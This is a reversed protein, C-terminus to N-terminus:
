QNILHVSRHKVHKQFTNNSNVSSNMTTTSSSLSSSTTVGGNNGGGAIVTNSNHHYAHELLYQNQMQNQLLKRIHACLDEFEINDKISELIRDVVWKANSRKKDPRLRYLKWVKKRHDYYFEGVLGIYKDSFCSDCVFVIEHEYGTITLSNTSEIVFDITNQDTSKWKILSEVAYGNRYLSSKDIFIFGEVKDVIVTNVTLIWESLLTYQQIHFLDHKFRLSRYFSQLERLRREFTYETMTISEIRLLDLFCIKNIKQIKLEKLEVAQSSFVVEVDIISDHWIQWEDCHGIHMCSDFIRNVLYVDDHWVFMLYREGDIKPAVYFGDHVLVEDLTRRTMSVPNNCLTKTNDTFYTTEKSNTDPNDADDDNNNDIQDKGLLYVIRALILFHSTLTRQLWLPSAPRTWQADFNAQYKNLTREYEHRTRIIIPRSDSSTVIEIQTEGDLFSLATDGGLLEYVSFLLTQDFPVCYCRDHDSSSILYESDIMSKLAKVLIWHRDTANLLYQNTCVFLWWYLEYYHKELYARIRPYYVEAFLLSDVRIKKM